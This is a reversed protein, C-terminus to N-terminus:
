MLVEAERAFTELLNQSLRCNVTLTQDKFYKVAKLIKYIELCWICKLADKCSLEYIVKDATFNLKKTQYSKQSLKMFMLAQTVHDRPSVRSNQAANQMFCRFVGNGEWGGSTLKIESQHIELRARERLPTGIWCYMAMRALGTVASTIELCASAFDVERWMINRPKAKPGIQNSQSGEEAAPGSSKTGFQHVASISWKFGLKVIVKPSLRRKAQQFVFVLITNMRRSCM